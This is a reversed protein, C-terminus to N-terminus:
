GTVLSRGLAPYPRGGTIPKVVAHYLQSNAPCFGFHGDHSKLPIEAANSVWKFPMLGAGRPQGCAPLLEPFKHTTPHKLKLMRNQAM